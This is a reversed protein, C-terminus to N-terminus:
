RETESPIQDFRVLDTRYWVYDDKLELSEM